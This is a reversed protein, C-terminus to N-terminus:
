WFAGGGVLVYLTPGLGWVLCVVAWIIKQSFKLDRRGAINIWTLVVALPHLVWAIVIEILLKM